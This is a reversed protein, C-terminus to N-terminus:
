GGEVISDDTPTLTFTGSDWEDSEAAITVTFDNVSTYDTGSTASDGAEGVSVTVTTAGSFADCEGNLTATVTVTQRGVM